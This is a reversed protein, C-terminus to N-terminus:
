GSPSPTGTQYVQYGTSFFVVRNFCLHSPALDSISRSAKFRPFFKVKLSSKRRFFFLTRDCNVGFFLQLEVSASLFNLLLFHLHFNGKHPDVLFFSTECKCPNLPLYWYESRREVRILAGQTAEVAALVSFFFCIALKDAYFFVASPLLCFLLFTM